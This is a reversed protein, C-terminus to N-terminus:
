LRKVFCSLSPGTVDNLVRRCHSPVEFGCFRSRSPRASKCILRGLMPQKCIWGGHLAYPPRCLSHRLKTGLHVVFTKLNNVFAKRIPELKLRRVVTERGREGTVKKEIEREIESEM